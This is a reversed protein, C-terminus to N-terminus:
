RVGVICLMVEPRTSRISASFDAIARQHDGLDAYADGRAVFAIDRWIRTVNPGNLIRTCARIVVDPTFEVPGNNGCKDEDTWQEPAPSQALVPSPILSALLGVTACISSRKVRTM